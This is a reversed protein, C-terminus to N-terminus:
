RRVEAQQDIERGAYAPITCIERDYARIEYVGVAPDGNTSLAVLRLGRTRESRDLTHVVRTATNDEVRVVTRWGNADAVQLEYDRLCQPDRYFAPYAHYERLLHGAFTLQVQKIEHEVPWTLEIWAPLPVAPDSRWQNTSRHPRAEGSIVQDPEYGRQPPVVEFGLTQGSGFRRYHGPNDEFAAIQGPAVAPSIHWEVDEAPALDVRVFSSGGVEPLGIDWTVWAPGGVPVEIEEKALVMGTDVRYDWIDDVAYLTAAVRASATGHNSLCLRIADLPQGAGRIIWQAVRRELNGRFPFLPYGRWYDIGGTRDTSSPGVGRVLDTSSASITASRALDVPDSNAVNVLFAGDRLITQQIRAIDDAAAEVVHDASFNLAAAIGVAEGMSACTGMVRTAGMAVHTASMNRGAFFLNDIVASSLARLPIGFPPVYKSGMSAKGPDKWQDQTSPEAIDKLLGGITHLDMYWGGFAVEDDFKTGDILDSETLLYRGELRRSERKGPVQGIWDLALTSARPSWYPHRNKLYDWIGLVHRTLEHRLIENDYLSNWPAGLEIWWYGSELTPIKRGGGTFFEDSDYRVAWEPAHFETPVGTDVTKFHLSSGMTDASSEAPAHTEGFEASAEIGFRSPNGALDGVTGDGTCDIFVSGRIERIMEAGWTRATVSAIHGDRVQVGEVGTNLHLTLNDTRVAMDYLVMDWVSNTWGNEEIKAHNRVREEILAESIVGTERAYGHFAAAGHPTVRIESSSNGGLVPRDQVLATKAGHRASALAASFGALGGGCVVVDYHEAVTRM